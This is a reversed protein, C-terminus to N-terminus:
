PYVGLEKEIDAVMPHTLGGQPPRHRAGMAEQELMPKGM